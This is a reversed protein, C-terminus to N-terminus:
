NRRTRRHLRWLTLRQKLTPKRGMRGLDEVVGDARIVRVGLNAKTRGRAKTNM